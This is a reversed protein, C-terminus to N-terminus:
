EIGHIRGINITGDSLKFATYQIKIGEVEVLQNFPTGEVIESSVSRFHTEISSQVAKRDLGLEDTHRFAHYIQNETKGFQVTMGEMLNEAIERAQNTLSVKAPTEAFLGITPGGGKGLTAITVMDIASKGVTAWYGDNTKVFRTEYNDNENKVFTAEYGFVRTFLSYFSNKVSLFDTALANAAEENTPCDPCNPDNPAMGTPDNFRIPNNQVFNYPSWAHFEDSLPDPSLWRSIVQPDLTAESFLTDAVVVSVVKNTITNFMVSGIQVLTDEEFFEVYKGKSLTAYKVDYGYKKMPNDQAQLCNFCLATLIFLILQKKMSSGPLTSKKIPMNKKKQKLSWSGDRM